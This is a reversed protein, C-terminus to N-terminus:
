KAAQRGPATVPAAEVTSSAWHALPALILDLNDGFAKTVAAKRADADDQAHITDDPGNDLEEHEHTPPHWLSTDCFDDAATAKYIKEVNVISPGDSGGGESSLVKTDHDTDVHIKNLRWALVDKRLKKAAATYDDIGKNLKNLYTHHQEACAHSNNYDEGPRCYYENTHLFQEKMVALHLAGFAVFYSLMQEPHDLNDFQKRAGRLIGQITTLDQGASLPETDARYGDLDTGMGDILSALTRMREDSIEQSVLNKVYAKMQNFVADPTPDDWLFKIVGSLAGGVDPIAAIIGTSADRVKAIPLKEFSADSTETPKCENSICQMLRQYNANDRLSANSLGGNGTCNKSDVKRDFAEEEQRKKEAEQRKKKAEERKKEEARLLDACAFNLNPCRVPDFIFEDLEGEHKNTENPTRKHTPEVYDHSKVTLSAQKTPKPHDPEIYDTSKVTLSAQKTPKPHDPEVYDNSKVTLSAQKTPKPHDPEVYEHSEDTLSAKKTPKPHDPEVYEHSEDTLSAKKIPKPHDPEVYEHSEDTRSAQKIPKQITEYHQGCNGGACDPHYDPRPECNGGTCARNIVERGCNPGNCPVPPPACNGGSCAVPPPACNGGNCAVPPPACNGGNCVVPPYPLPPPPVPTPPVYPPRIDVVKAPPLTPCREVCVRRSAGCTAPTNEVKLYCGKGTTGACLSPDAPFDTRRPYLVTAGVRLEQFNDPCNDPAPIVNIVIDGVSDHYPDTDAAPAPTNPQPSYLRAKREENLQKKIDDLEEQRKEELKAKEIDSKHQHELEERYKRKQAQNNNYQQQRMIQQQQQQQKEMQQQRLINTIIGIGLGIAANAGSGNNGGGGNYPQNGGGNYPRSYNGSPRDDDDYQVLLVGGRLAHSHGASMDRLYGADVAAARLGPGGIAAANASIPLAVGAAFLLAAISGGLKGM